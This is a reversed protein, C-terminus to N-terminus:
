LAEIGLKPQTGERKTHLREFEQRTKQLEQKTM